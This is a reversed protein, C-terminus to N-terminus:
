RQARRPSGRERARALTREPAVSTIAGTARERVRRQLRLYAPRAEDFLLREEVLETSTEEVTSWEGVNEPLPSFDGRFSDFFSGGTAAHFGCFVAIWFAGVVLALLVVLM